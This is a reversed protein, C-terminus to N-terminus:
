FQGVFRVEGFRIFAEEGRCEPGCERGDYHSGDQCVYHHGITPDDYCDAYQKKQCEPCDRCNISSSQWEDAGSCANHLESGFKVELEHNCSCYVFYTDVSDLVDLNSM